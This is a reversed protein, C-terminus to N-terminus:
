GSERDVIFLVEASALDKGLHSLDKNNLKLSVDCRITAQSVSVNSVKAAGAYFYHADDSYILEFAKLAAEGNNIDTPFTYSVTETILQVPDGTADSFTVPYSYFDLVM